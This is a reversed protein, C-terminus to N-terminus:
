RSMCACLLVLEVSVCMCWGAYMCMHASSGSVCVGVVMWMCLYWRWMFVCEHKCMCMCIGGEMCICVYTGREMYYISMLVEVYVWVCVVKWAYACVGLYWWCMFVCTGGEIYM